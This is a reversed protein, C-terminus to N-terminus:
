RRGDDDVGGFRDFGGDDVVDVIDAPVTTRLLTRSPLLEMHQGYIETFSVVGSM